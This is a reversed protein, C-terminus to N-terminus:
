CGKESIKMDCHKPRIKSMKHIQIAYLTEMWKPKLM